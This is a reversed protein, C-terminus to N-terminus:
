KFPLVIAEFKINKSKITNVADDISIKGRPKPHPPADAFHFVYRNDSIFNMKNLEVIAEYVAEPVDEGGIARETSIIKEISSLDDTLYYIKNLYSSGYDKYFILGLRIKGVKKLINKIIEPFEKKFVPLEERMSETTDIIFVIDADVDAKIRGPIENDLIDELKQEDLKEISIGGAKDTFYKFDEFINPRFNSESYKIQLTIWQDTFTGTYDAYNKEFIRLNIKIGPKINIIGQRTWDYGFFVKEPLFFHFCEGLDSYTETTSDVLYFADYKTHLEKGDLIRIEDGNANHYEETRLAYNTKQNYPDKQSETLLISGVGDIKKIYLDYGSDSKEFVIFENPISPPNACILINCFIILLLIIIQKMM